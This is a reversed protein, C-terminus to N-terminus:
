GTLRRRDEWREVVISNCENNNIALATHKLHLLRTQFLHARGSITTVSRLVTIARTGCRSNFVSGGAQSVTVSANVQRKGPLMFPGVTDELYGQRFEPFNVPLTYAEIFVVTGDKSKYQKGDLSLAAAGSPNETGSITGQQGPPPAKRGGDLTYPDFGSM